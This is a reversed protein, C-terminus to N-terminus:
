CIGGGWRVFTYTEGCKFTVWGINMDTNEFLTWCLVHIGTTVLIRTFM